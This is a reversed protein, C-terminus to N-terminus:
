LTEILKLFDWFPADPHITGCNIIEREIGFRRAIIALTDIDEQFVRDKLLVEPAGDWLYRQLFERLEQGRSM